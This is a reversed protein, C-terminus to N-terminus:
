LELMNRLWELQGAHFLIADFRCPPLPRVKLLYTQAARILRRQKAPTISMLAGGFGGHDRQRVEVFVLGPGDRMILDIEGCKCLYNAQVLRLGRQELYRQAVAQWHQGQDQSPSSM